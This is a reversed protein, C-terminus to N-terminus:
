GHPAGPKRVTANAGNAHGYGTQENIYGIVREEPKPYPNTLARIEEACARAEIDCLTADHVSMASHGFIPDGRAACVKAAEEKAREYAEHQVTAFLIGAKKADEANTFHLVGTDPDPNWNTPDNMGERRRPADNLLNPWTGNNRAHWYAQADDANAWAFLLEEIVAADRKDLKAQVLAVRRTLKCISCHCTM